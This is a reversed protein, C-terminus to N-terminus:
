RQLSLTGETIQQVRGLSVPLTCHNIRNVDSLLSVNAQWGYLLLTGYIGFITYLDGYMECISFPDGHM